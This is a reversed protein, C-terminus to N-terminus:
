LEKGRQLCNVEDIRGQDFVHGQLADGRFYEELSDDRSGSGKGRM